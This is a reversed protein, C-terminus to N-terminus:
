PLNAKPSSQNETRLPAALASAGLASRLKRQLDFDETVFIEELVSMRKQLDKVEQKAELVQIRQVLEQVQTQTVGEKTKLWRSIVKAFAQIVVAIALFEFFGMRQLYGMTGSTGDEFVLRVRKAAHAAQNVLSLLRTGADVMVKCGSPFVLEVELVGPGHIATQYKLSDDLSSAGVWRSPLRITAKM